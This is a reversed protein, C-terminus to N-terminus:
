DDRYFVDRIRIKRVVLKSVNECSVTIIDRSVNLQRTKRLSKFLTFFSVFFSFSLGSPITYLFESTISTDTM